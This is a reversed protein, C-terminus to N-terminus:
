KHAFYHDGSLDFSKFVNTIKRGHEFRGSYKTYCIYNFAGMDFKDKCGNDFYLRVMDHCLKMVVDRSGGVVGCNLLINRPNSRLFSKVPDYPHNVMMWKNFLNTPEDGVYLKGDVLEPFPNKLMTVDSVDVVFVNDIEPHDRLYQYQSLWRQFYPNISGAVKILEFGYESGNEFCDNLLVGRVRNKELSLGLNKFIETDAAWNQNRQPDVHSTLFSSLVINNESKNKHEPKKRFECYADSEFSAEFLAKNRQLGQVRDTRGISSSVEQWEDMSHILKDSDIVDMYRFSTLGANFIRNSYAAHEHMAIGFQEDFGGVVDLVIRDVYLFCGRSHDFAIIENNRYIEHTDNLLKARNHPKSSKFELFNYALHPESSEVYPKWWDETLFQVDDDLLFIHDAGWDYALALCQNKAAAIGKPYENRITAGTTPVQSGDDVVFIKAGKPLFHKVNM